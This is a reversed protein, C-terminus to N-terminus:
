VDFESKGLNLGYPNFRFLYGIRTSGKHLRLHSWKPVPNNVLQTTPWPNSRPGGSTRAALV